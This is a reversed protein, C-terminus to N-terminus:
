ASEALNTVARSPHAERSILRAAGDGTEVVSVTAACDPCLWFFEILHGAPGRHDVQYIRGGTFKHFPRRCGPNACETVM